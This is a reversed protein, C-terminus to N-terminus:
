CRVSDVGDVGVLCSVLTNADGGGGDSPHRVHELDFVDADRIM